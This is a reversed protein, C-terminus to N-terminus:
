SRYWSHSCSLRVACRGLPARDPRKAGVQSILPGPVARPTTAPRLRGRSREGHSWGSRLDDTGETSRLITLESNGIEYRAASWLGQLFADSLSDPGCPRPQYPDPRLSLGTSSLGTRGAPVTRYAGSVTLCDATAVFTWDSMFEITYKTPDPVVVPGDATGTTAGTWQWKTGTLLSGPAPPPAVAVALVVIMLVAVVSVIAVVVIRGGVPGERVGRLAEVDVGGNDEHRTARHSNGITARGDGPEACPRPSAGRRLYPRRPAVHPLRPRPVGRTGRAAVVDRRASAAAAGRPLRRAGRLGAALVAAGRGPSGYPAGAERTGHGREEDLLM